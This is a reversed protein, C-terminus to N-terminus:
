KDKELLQKKTERNNKLVNEVYNNKQSSIEKNMKMYSPESPNKHQDSCKEIVKSMPVTAYKREKLSWFVDGGKSKIDQINKFLSIQSFLPITQNRSLILYHVINELDPNFRPEKSRIGEIFEKNKNKLLTLSVSGQNFLHSLGSSGSHKIKVHIFINKKGNSIFLVDCPEIKDYGGMPICKRDLLTAGLEKALCKNYEAESEYTYDPITKQDVDERKLPNIVTDLEDLFKQDLHYWKGHSFHYNKGELQCDFIFCRICSFSYKKHENNDLLIVEWKKLDELTIDKKLKQTIKYLENINLTNIIHKKRDKVNIRFYSMDQFDILEPVDLYINSRQKNLTDLMEKILQNIINEDKVPRIHFVEPFNIKYNEKEYVKYLIYCLEGLKMVSKYTNIRIGENSASVNNSINKYKEQTKGTINKLIHCFGDIDHGQLNSDLVTQTRRQKSHDSPAFIDSSKIKNKDLMNLTTILGFNQTLKNIELMNHGYGFCVAFWRNEFKVFLVASSNSVFASIDLYEAWAPKYQQKDDIVIKWEKNGEYNRLKSQYIEKLSDEPFAEKKLLYVSLKISKKKTKM